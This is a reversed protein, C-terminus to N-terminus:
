AVREKANERVLSEAKVEALLADYAELTEGRAVLLRLYYAALEGDSLFAPLIPTGTKRDVFSPPAFLGSRMAGDSSQVRRPADCPLSQSPSPLSM